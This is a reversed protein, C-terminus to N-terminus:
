QEIVTLRDRREELQTRKGGLSAVGVPESLRAVCQLVGELITKGFEVVVGPDQLEVYLVFDPPLRVQAREGLVNLGASPVGRESAKVQAEKLVVEFGNGAGTTEKLVV